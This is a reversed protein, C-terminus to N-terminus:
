NVRPAEMLDRASLGEVTGGDALRLSLSTTNSSSEDLQEPYWALFYGGEVTARVTRSRDGSRARVTIDVGVVRSGVHGTMLRCYGEETRMQPWGQMEVGTGGLTAANVPEMMISANRLKGDHDRFCSASWGPTVVSVYAYDGRREGHVVRAARDPERYSYEGGVQAVCRDALEDRDAAALPSPQPTWSAYAAASGLNPLTLVATAAVAAAALVAVAAKRPRWAARGLSAPAPVPYTSSAVIRDLLAQAPAAAVRAPVPEAADRLAQDLNM